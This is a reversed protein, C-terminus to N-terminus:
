FCKKKNENESEKPLVFSEKMLIQESFRLVFVCSYVLFGLYLSCSFLPFTPYFIIAKLSPRRVCVHGANENPARITFRNPKAFDTFYKSKLNSSVRNLCSQFYFLFYFKQQQEYFKRSWLIKIHFLYTVPNGCSVLSMQCAM